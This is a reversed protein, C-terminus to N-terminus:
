NLEILEEAHHGGSWWSIFWSFLNVFNKYCEIILFCTYIKYYYPNMAKFSKLLTAFSRPSNVSSL